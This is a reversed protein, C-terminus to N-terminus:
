PIRAAHHSDILPLLGTIMEQKPNAIDADDEEIHFVIIVFCEHTRDGQHSKIM